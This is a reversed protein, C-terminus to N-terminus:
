KVFDTWIVGEADSPMKFDGRPSLGVSGVKVGDPMCSRKFQQSFFRVYFKNLWRKITQPPYDGSFVQSALYLIKEPKFGWRLTYYLFFDHLEYPGVLDETKQGIEGDKGPILEPSVPTDLISLLAEGAEGGIRQAEARILHRVLTKPVGANVGYMSMQDGGYTCWGLVLESLDGTGVVIGGEKNAIDMLIQTRERAQANEYATNYENEDQGIDKFHRSVSEKIDIIRLEAGLAKILKVANSKTLDSTAVCPMTIGIINKRDYGLKDFARVTVLFALASDLGGSIGIMAKKSKVFLLRKKLGECQLSLILEARKKAHFSEHVFPNKDIKRTLESKKSVYDFYVTVYGSDKESNFTNLRQREFSLKDLDIESSIISSDFLESEKLIYGDEAIINHGSFVLDTTSEGEGASAYVYGCLGRASQSTILSRRYESKGVVEDSASLNVIIVAGNQTHHSSPPIAVWLDECIEAAVTLKPNNKAKFIIKTNFPVTAGFIETEKIDGNASTFYRMESFEGYNPIFSKPIIGLVIGGKIAVAVNYLKQNYVYPMGLFALVTTAKTRSLITKLAELAGCLLTEQFLLDGVTYGTVCMEPLALVEIGQKEANNIAEAISDANYVTDAVKIKPTAAGVKVFGYEM